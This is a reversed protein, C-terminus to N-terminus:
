CVVTTVIWIGCTLGMICAIIPRRTSYLIQLPSVLLLFLLLWAWWQHQVVDRLPSIEYLKVMLALVLLRPLIEVVAALMGMSLSVQLDARRYLRMGRSRAWGAELVIALIFLPLAALTRCWPLRTACPERQVALKAVGWNM